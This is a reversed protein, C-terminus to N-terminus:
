KKKRDWQMIVQRTTDALIQVFGAAMASRISPINKKSMYAFVKDYRSLECAKAYAYRGIHKGQSAKNLYIQISPHEGLPEENILNIFIKGARTDNCFINWYHGGRGGGSLKTGKGPSLVVDTETVRASMQEEVSVSPKKSTAQKKRKTLQPEEKSSLKRKSVAPKEEKIEDESDMCMGQSPTILTLSLACSFLFRLM